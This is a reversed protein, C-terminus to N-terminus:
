ANRSSVMKKVPERKKVDAANQWNWYARLVDRVANQDVKLWNIPVKINLMFVKSAKKLRPQNACSRSTQVGFM